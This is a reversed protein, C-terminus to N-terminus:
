EEYHDRLLQKLKGAKSFHVRLYPTLAVKKTGARKGKKFRGQTLKVTHTARTRHVTLVGLGTLRATGSEVLMTAVQDLFESTIYSVDAPPIGLERAVRRDLEHKM